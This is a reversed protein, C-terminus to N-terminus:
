LVIAIDVAVSRRAANGCALKGSHPRVEQHAHYLRAHHQRYCIVTTTTPANPRRRGQQRKSAVTTSQKKARDVSETARKCAVRAGLTNGVLQKTLPTWLSRVNVIQFIPQHSCRPIEMRAFQQPPVFVKLPSYVAPTTNM